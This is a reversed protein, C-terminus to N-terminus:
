NWLIGYTPYLAAFGLTILCLGPSLYTPYLAAFGLSKSVDPEPYCFRRFLDYKDGTGVGGKQNM